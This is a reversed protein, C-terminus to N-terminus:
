GLRDVRPAAAQSTAVPAGCWACHSWRGEIVRHCGPCTPQLCTGCHPCYAFNHSASKGCKSCFGSLPERLIFYLIIGVGWFLFTALLTWMVYRMGRRKADGYVYGIALINGAAALPVLAPIVFRANGHLKYPGVEIFFLLAFSFLVAALVWAAVPIVHDHKPAPIMM